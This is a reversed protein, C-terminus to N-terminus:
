RKNTTCFNHDCLKVKCLNGSAFSRVDIYSNNPAGIAKYDAEGYVVPVTSFLLPNYFKETAYDRCLSNEFALYFKYDREVTEDQKKFDIWFITFILLIYCNSRSARYKLKRVVLTHTVRMIASREVVAM